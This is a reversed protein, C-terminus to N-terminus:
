RSWLFYQGWVLPSQFAPTRIMEVQVARYAAAVSAGNVLNTYFVENFFKKSRRLPVFGNMITTGTGNLALLLPVGTHYYTGGPSLNSVVVTPTPPLAFLAGVPLEAPFTQSKGDSLVIAANEPHRSNVILQAAIHLLQSSEGALEAITAQKGFYLRADKFFARIDRLEYEVDWRTRGPFGAAAVGRVVTPLRPPLLLSGALPLYLVLHQEAVYSSRKGSGTRLAHVPLWPFEPTAVVLITGGPPLDRAVPLMFWEGLSALLQEAQARSGAADVRITDAESEVSRFLSFLQEASALVQDSGAAALRVTADDQTVVFAYLSRATPVFRVLTAATGLRRQVEPLRVGEVGVLPALM